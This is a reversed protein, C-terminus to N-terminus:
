EALFSVPSGTCWGESAWFDSLATARERNVGVVTRSRSDLAPKPINRYDAPKEAIRRVMHMGVTPTLFPALSRQVTSAAAALIM